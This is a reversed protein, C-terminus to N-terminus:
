ADRSKPPLGCIVATANPLEPLAALIRDFGKTRAATGISLLAAGTLGLEARVRERTGDTRFEPRRRAAARPPPAPAFLEAPTGWARRYAAIQAETLALVRTRSEPAFCAAELALMGGVRPNLRSWLRPKRDAFCVDGCYLVDLGPMKDFGVVRDFKGAVEG